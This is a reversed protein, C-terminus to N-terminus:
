RGALVEIEFFRPEGGWTAVGVRRADPISRLSVPPLLEVGDIEARAWGKWLTFVLERSEEAPPLPVPDSALVLRDYRELRLAVRDKGRPLLILNWGSLGDTGGEGQVTILLKPAETQALLVRVRVAEGLRSTIAPKVWLLNSPSDKPFGPRVTWRRWAVGRDTSTGSFAKGQLRFGGVVQETKSRLSRRDITVLHKWYRPEMVTPRRPPSAPEEAAAQFDLPSGDPRALALAVGARGSKNRVKVLIENSGARLEIPFRIADPLLARPGRWPETSGEAGPYRYSGIRQQNVFLVLDDDARLYAVAPTEDEVSVSTYAYIASRDDGYPQYDFRLWGTPLLEVNKHSTTPKWSPWPDQWFRQTSDRHNSRLSPPKQDFDVELEPPFIAALPDAEAAFFPGIVKWDFVIGLRARLRECAALDDREAARLLDGGILDRPLPSGPRHAFDGRFSDFDELDYAEMEEFLQRRDSEALPWRYAVLDDFVQPGFARMLYYALARPAGPTRGDRMPAERYERFFRRLPAWDHGHKGRKSYRDVLSLFLGASPGYNQIRWYPLDRELYFQEFQALNGAFSHLSDGEQGLAEHAFAAGLNALGEHFGGIVPRTDDICHTLEHYLLGTDVRVPKAPAPDAKGIDIRTGGGVGGGFDWLEKFYVTIRETGSNPRRGFLDTLFVYALDFNLRSSAPIGEVLKRPGIYLFEHSQSVATREWAPHEVIARVREAQEPPTAALYREGITNLQEQADDYLEIGDIRQLKRLLALALPYHQEGAQELAYEFLERTKGFREVAAQVRAEDEKSVTTLIREKLGEIRTTTREADDLAGIVAEDADLALAGGVEELLRLAGHLEGRAAMRGAELRYVRELEGRRRQGILAEEAESPPRAPFRGVEILADRLEQKTEESAADRLAQTLLGWAEPAASRGLEEARALVEKLRRAGAVGAFRPVEFAELDALGDPDVLHEAVAPPFQAKGHSFGLRLSILTGPELERGEPLALDFALDHTEGVVWSRTPPDIEFDEVWAEELEVDLAVRLAYDQEPPELATCELRLTFTGRDSCPTLLSRLDIPVARPDQALAGASLLSLCLALRLSLHRM